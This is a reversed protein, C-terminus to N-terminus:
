LCRTESVKYYKWEGEAANVMNGGGGLVASTIAAVNFISQCGRSIIERRSSARLTSAPRRITVRAEFGYTHKLIFLLALFLFSSM